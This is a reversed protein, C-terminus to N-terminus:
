KVLQKYVTDNVVVPYDKKLQLLWDKELKDQYDAVVYGRAEKLSKRRPPDIQVIKKFSSKNKIKDIIPESVFNKKWELGNLAPNGAEVSTDEYSVVELGDKNFKSLTKDAGKKKAYKAIKKVLKPDTSELFYTGITAREGYMYQDRNQEYYQYLGVTDQNAKDWVSIKTAEFLLIGEEYERMLSKFAPYKVELNKEEYAIARDKVYASYIDQLSEALPKDKGYQSRTRTNKKCYAAFDALSYQDEGFAFLIGSAATTLEPTWRYSYFEETLTEEFAKLITKDEKFNSTRKIREILGEQAVAYRDYNKLKDKLRKKLDAQTEAPVKELLKIIHYGSKTKVPRSYEGPSSLKFATDEFAKEYTSIGFVPLEGKKNASKKDDSYVTVLDNWAAGGQLATYISDATEKLRGQEKSGKNESKLLIHAVKIQGRAPRSKRIRLLHCGMKSWVPGVIDGDTNTYIANELEYFGSPLMATVFGLEGERRSSNKDESYKGALEAFNAGRKLEKKIDKIKQEAQRKMEDPANDKVKLLIHQVRVDTKQREHIEAILYDIVERESLFSSALQRRYGELEQKLSSITDLQMGKAKQVKLKFRKYLELYEDLSAKSYDAQQGNNKEYIYRFEEVTVEADGVTMLVDSDSQATLSLTICLVLATM